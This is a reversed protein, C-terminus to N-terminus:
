VRFCESILLLIDPHLRNCDFKVAGSGDFSLVRANHGDITVTLADTAGYPTLSTQVPRSIEVGTTVTGAQESGMSNKGSMVYIGRTEGKPSHYGGNARHYGYTARVQRRIVHPADDPLRTM